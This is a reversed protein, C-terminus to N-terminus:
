AAARAVRSRSERAAGGVSDNRSRATARALHVRSRCKGAAFDQKEKVGVRAERLVGVRADELTKNRAAPCPPPEVHADFAGADTQGHDRKEHVQARARGANGGAILGNEDPALGELARSAERRELQHLVDRQRAGELTHRPRQAKGVLRHCRPAAPLPAAHQAGDEEHPPQAQCKEETGRRGTKRAEIVALAPSAPQRTMTKALAGSGPLTLVRRIGAKLAAPAASSCRRRTPCLKPAAVPARSPGTSSHHAGSVLS